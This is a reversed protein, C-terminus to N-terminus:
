SGILFETRPKYAVTVDSVYNKPLRDDSGFEHVQLVIFRQDNFPDAEPVSGVLPWKAYFEDATGGESWVEQSESDAEILYGGDNVNQIEAYMTDIPLILMYDCFVTATTAGVSRRCYAEIKLTDVVQTKDRLPYGLDITGFYAEVWNSQADDTIVVEDYEASPDSGGVLVNLSGYLTGDSGNDRIYCYVQAMGGYPAMTPSSTDNLTAIATKSAASPTISASRYAGGSFDTDAVGSENEVYNGQAALGNKKHFMRIATTSMAGSTTPNLTFKTHAPLDGLVDAMDLYNICGEGDSQYHNRLAAGSAWAKPRTTAGLQLYTKDAYFTTNESADGTLRELRMTLTTDGTTTAGIVDLRKWTNGGAGEATPVAADYSATGISGSGDAQVDLTIDDNASSRYVWAYSVFNQVGSTAVTDSYIGDTGSNDTVVKQSQTGVLYISTDLTTTPSGNGAWHDALGDADEDEEFHPTGLSNKLTEVAGYGDPTTVVTVKFADGFAIDNGQRNFYDWLDLRNYKVDVVGYRTWNAAGELQIELYVEDVDREIWHRRANRVLKNLTALHDPIDDVDSTEIKLKMPWTRNTLRERVIEDGDQWDSSHYLHSHQPLGFENGGTMMQFGPASTDYYLDITTTGDSLRFVDTRAM